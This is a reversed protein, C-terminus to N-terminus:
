NTATSSSGLPVARRKQGWAAGRPLMIGFKFAYLVYLTCIPGM